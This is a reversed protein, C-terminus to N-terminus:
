PPVYRVTSHICESASPPVMPRKKEKHCAAWWPRGSSICWGGGWSLRVSSCRSASSAMHSLSAGTGLIYWDRGPLPRSYTRNKTGSSAMSPGPESSHAPRCRESTTVAMRHALIISSEPASCGFIQRSCSRRRRMGSSCGKVPLMNRQRGRSKGEGGCPATETALWIWFWRRLASNVKSWRSRVPARWPTGQAHDSICRRTLAPSPGMREILSRVWKSATIEKSSPVRPLIGASDKPQLGSMGQNRSSERSRKAFYGRHCAQSVGAGLPM